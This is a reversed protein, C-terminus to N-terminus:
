DLLLGSVQLTYKDELGLNGSLHYVGASWMYGNGKKWHSIVNQEIQLIHGIKWDELFINARVIRSKDVTPNNKVIQYFHDNHWPLCQGPQQKITAVREVRMGLLAGLSDYDLKDKNWSVQNILTNHDSFSAPLKTKEQEQHYSLTSWSQEHKNELFLSFDFDLKIPVLLKGM